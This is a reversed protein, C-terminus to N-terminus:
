TLIYCIFEFYAAMTGGFMMLGTEIHLSALPVLGRDALFDM